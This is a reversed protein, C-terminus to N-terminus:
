DIKFQWRHPVTLDAFIFDEEFYYPNTGGLTLVSDPGSSGYRNLYISFVPAQVLGQSVMNDFVSPEEDGDINNFGLGLIGDNTSRWFLDPELLAEGFSQNKIKLGAITMRDQSFYGTIRGSDDIVDFHKKNTSHTRSLKDVYRKYM